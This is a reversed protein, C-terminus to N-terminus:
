AAAEATDADLSGTEDSLGVVTRQFERAFQRAFANANAETADSGTVELQITLNEIVVGGRGGSLSSSSGSASGFDISPADPPSIMDEVAAQANDNEGEVGDAFGMGVFGGIEAFVKSPSAIGLAKKAVDPLLDLLGEVNELMTKWGDKIGKWLGDVIDTGVDLLSIGEWWAQLEDWSHPIRDFVDKFDDYLGVLRGPIGLVFTMGSLFTGATKGGVYGIAEALYTLTTTLAEFTKSGKESGDFMKLLPALAPGIAKKFAGGLVDALDMVVGALSVAASLVKEIDEPTIKSLADGVAQFARGLTARIKEGSETTPDLLKSISKLAEIFPGTVASDAFVSQMQNKLAQLQGEVTGEGLQKSLTGLPGGGDIKDSVMELIAKTGTDADVKGDKLLQEIQKKTKGATNAGQMGALVEYFEDSDGLGAAKLQELAGVDLKGKSRIGKMAEMLGKGRDEGLAAGVDLGARMIQQVQEVEFGALRLEKYFGTLKETPLGASNALERLGDLTEKANADVGDIARLAILSKAQFDSAEIAWKEAAAVMAVATAAIAAGATVAFSMLDAGTKESAEGVRKMGEAHAKHAEAAKREAKEVESLEKKVGKLSAEAAQAPKSAEDVLKLAFDVQDNNAM